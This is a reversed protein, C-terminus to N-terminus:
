SPRPSIVKLTLTGTGYQEALEGLVQEIPHHSYNVSNGAMQASIFQNPIMSLRANEPLDIAISGSVLILACVRVLQGSDEKSFFTVRLKQKSHIGQVFKSHNSDM